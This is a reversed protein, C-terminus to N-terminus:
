SVFFLGEEDHRLYLLPIALRLAEIPPIIYILVNLISEKSSVNCFDNNGDM